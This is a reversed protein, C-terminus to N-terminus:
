ICSLQCTQVRSTSTAMAGRAEALDRHSLARVTEVALSMRKINTKKTLEVNTKKM